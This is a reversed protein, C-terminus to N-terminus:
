RGLAVRVADSASRPDRSTARSAVPWDLAAAHGETTPGFAVLPISRAVSRRAPEGLAAVRRRGDAGDGRARREGSRAVADADLEFTRRRLRRGDHRRDAVSAGTRPGDLMRPRSSCSPARGIGHRPGNRDRARAVADCHLGVAEVATSARRGSRPSGPARQGHAPGCRSGSAAAVSHGRGLRLAQPGPGWASRTTPRDRVERGARDDRERGDSPEDRVARGRASECSAVSPARSGRRAGRGREARQDCRCSRRPSRGAEEPDEDSGMGRVLAAGDASLLVGQIVM